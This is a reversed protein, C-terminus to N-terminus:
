TKTVPQPPVSMESREDSALRRARADRARRLIAEILVGTLLGAVIGVATSLLTSGGFLSHAGVGLLTSYGAWLGAAVVAALAFRGRQVGLAGAGANIAVRGVPIFRGTIVMTAGRRDYADAAKALARVGRDGRLGPLRHLPVRRGLTFALLDGLFAGLAAVVVLILVPEGSGAALVAATILVTESPVPPVVGDAVALGFVLLLLWPSAGLQSALTELQVLLDMM